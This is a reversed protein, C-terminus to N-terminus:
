LTVDDLPWIPRPLKTYKRCTVDNGTTGPAECYLVKSAHPAFRAYFHQNSKVILMRKGFPDVGLETFVEPSFTQVRRTNLIIDIGDVRIAVADGIRLDQRGSFGIQM